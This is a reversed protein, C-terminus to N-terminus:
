GEDMAQKNLTPIRRLRKGALGPPNHITPPTPSLPPPKDLKLTEAAELYFRYVEPDGEHTRHYWAVARDFWRRAVEPNGTRAQIMAMFFWDYGDGEGDGRIRISRELSRRAEDLDGARYAAVGLTNWYNGEVAALEVARRAYGQAENPWQITKDGCTALLWALNNYAQALDRMRAPAEPSDASTGRANAILQLYAEKADSWRKSEALTLAHALAAQFEPDRPLPRSASLDRRYTVHPKPDSRLVFERVLSSENLVELYASWVTHRVNLVLFALGVYVVLRGQLRRRSPAGELQKEGVARAASNALTWASIATVLELALQALGLLARTVAAAGLNLLAWRSVVLSGVLVQSDTRFFLGTMLNLFGGLSLIFFTVASARLFVYSGTRRLVLAMVLPWAFGLAFAPPYEQFFTALLRLSPLRFRSMELLSSSYEGLTSILRVTGLIMMWSSIQVIRATVQESVAFSANRTPEALQGENSIVIDM